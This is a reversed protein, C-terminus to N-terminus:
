LMSGAEKGKVFLTSLTNQMMERSGPSVCALQVAEIMCYCLCASTICFSSDFLCGSTALTSAQPVWTDWMSVPFLRM